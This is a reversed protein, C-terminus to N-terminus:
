NNNPSNKLEKSNLLGELHTRIIHDRTMARVDADTISKKFLKRRIDDTRLVHIVSGALQVASLNVDLWPALLQRDKAKSLFDALLQFTRLFTTKFVDGLLEFESTLDRHLISCIEPNKVGDILMEDVFMSLRVRVEDMSTPASSLVREAIELRDLGAQKFCAQLLGQKGGFHYSVLSVNCDADRAIDHVSAAEFGHASFHKLAASMLSTRTDKAADPAKPRSRKQRRVTKSISPSM